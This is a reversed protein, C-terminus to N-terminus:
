LKWELLCRGAFKVQVTSGIIDLPKFVIFCQEDKQINRKAKTDFVSSVNMLAEIGMMQWLPWDDTNDSAIPDPFDDPVASGITTNALFEQPLVIGAIVGYTYDNTSSPWGLGRTRVHMTEFDQKPTAALLYVNDVVPATITTHFPFWSMNRSRRPRRYQARRYRAM